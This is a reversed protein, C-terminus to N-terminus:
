ASSPMRSTAGDRPSPSTYLLCRLTDPKKPALRIAERVWDPGLPIQQGFPVGRDDCIHMTVNGYRRLDMLHNAWCLTAVAKGCTVRPWVREEELLGRLLQIVPLQWKAPVGQKEVWDHLEGSTM